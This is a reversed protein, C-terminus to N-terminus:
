TPDSIKIWRTGATIRKQNEISLKQAKGVFNQQGRKNKTGYIM